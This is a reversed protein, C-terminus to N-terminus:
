TYSIENTSDLELNKTKNNIRKIINMSFDVITNLSTDLEKFDKNKSWSTNTYIYLCLFISM